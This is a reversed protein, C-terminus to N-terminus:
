FQFFKFGRVALAIFCLRVVRFDEDGSSSSKSSSSSSSSSSSEGVGGKGGGAVSKGQNARPGRPLASRVM